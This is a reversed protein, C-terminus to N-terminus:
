LEVHARFSFISVPGRDTNCGPNMCYQYDATFWFGQKLPKFSYYFEGIFEPAYSLKGDGLIFGEGGLALYTQHDKSLGNAVFALGCNDNPRKWKHGNASLGISATQDIETFCWTEHKGDNWGIRSFVGFTNSLQQDFNLGFGYKTNGFVETKTIDPVTTPTTMASALSYTGMNANNFYGLLRINGPRKHITITRSIQANISYAQSIDTNLKAGNAVTPLTAISAKYNMKGLRLETTFNYTYGRVNAAYDWAGNNVLSWNLFQTRPSNGYENNDYLDGLCLKGVYFRLYNKPQYGALQNADSEVQERNLVGIKRAHKNRLAFTQQLYGRALYLTPAPNGVRFTEGNSSGAMGLASSLGSGGALEPNVYVEAGKWLRFGFFMTATLSNENDEFGSLSNGGQYPSNFAPKYQYVYTTQFHINFWEIGSTNANDITQIDNNKFDYQQAQATNLLLFAIAFLSLYKM